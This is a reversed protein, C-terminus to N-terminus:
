ARAKGRSKSDFADRTRLSVSASRAEAILARILRAGIGSGQLSPALQIQILDWVKGDRAVKWLGVREQALLIIQACELRYRVRELRESESPEIGSTAQHLSMTERRLDLLFEIDAPTARRLSIGPATSDPM